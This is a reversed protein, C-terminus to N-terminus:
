YQTYIKKVRSSIRSLIEYPITHCVDALEAIPKEPSFIIVEDGIHITHKSGIDVMTLDMCINGVIPYVADNIIVEFRRNGALRMLGDAYGINIIAIHTDEVLLEARNYGVSDGKNMKKIQIVTAKLTHAPILPLDVAVPGVGYMGIGLRVLEYHFEPFRVIGSSNLVHRPPKYQIRTTIMDYMIDFLEVQRITYPDHLANDSSSLHSFISGVKVCDHKILIETLAPIDHTLFGLRHMGTDLKLHIHLAHSKTRELYTVLERLQELSYVEPELNYTVLQNVSNRDPNLVMIPLQIGNKRLYVGEDIFAVALYDVKRYSLLRALEESGSGYASAKIVAIISTKKSLIASFCKVNNDIAQLNIELIASHAKSELLQLVRELQFHRAGKILIAKDKINVQGLNALLSDTDGYWSFLMFPDLINELQRMQAGIAVIHSLNYRQFLDALIMLFKEQKIGTQFFESVIVIKERSGAQKNLFDLAIRLAEIDANYSDNIILSNELGNKLELRMPLNHLDKVRSQIDKVTYKLYLLCSIVHMVNHLSADDDFPLDITFTSAKYKITYISNKNLISKNIIRVKDTQLTGWSFLRKSGFKEKLAEFVLGDISSCIIVSSHEFLLIKEQIKQTLNVFGEAHADGINTMIGITPRLIQALTNMENVTSIGAEFIGIEHQTNIQWVSLPVGLQSNYSKPSKVVSNDFLVQSLWEKVTTKGNSGTIGILPLNSFVRRHHQALTQLAQVSNKVLYFNIGSPLFGVIKEGVINLCGSAIVQEIFEHGDHQAGTLAFFLTDSDISSERSDISIHRIVASSQTIYDQPASIIAAVEIATYTM